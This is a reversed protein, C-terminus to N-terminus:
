QRRGFICECTLNYLELFGFICECPLNYLESFGVPSETALRVVRPVSEVAHRFTYNALFILARHDGLRAEV